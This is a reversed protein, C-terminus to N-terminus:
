VPGDSSKLTWPSMTCAKRQGGGLAMGSKTVNFEKFYHSVGHMEYYCAEDNLFRSFMGNITPLLNFLDGTQSQLAEQAKKKTSSAISSEVAEAIGVGAAAGGLALGVGLLAGGFFGLAGLLGFALGGLFDTLLGTDADVDTIKADWTLLNEASVQPTMVATVDVLADPYNDLYYTLTSDIKICQEDWSLRLSKYKGIKSGKEDYLRPNKKPNDAKTVNWINKEFRGLVSPNVGIIFDAYTPLYNEAADLNGRLPNRQYLQYVKEETVINGETDKVVLQHNDPNIELGGFSRNGLVRAYISKQGSALVEIPDRVYHQWSEVIFGYFDDPTLIDGVSDQPRFESLINLHDLHWRDAFYSVDMEFEPHLPWLQAVPEGQANKPNNYKDIFELVEAGTKWQSVDGYPLRRKMYRALANEYYDTLDLNLYLGIAGQYEPTSNLKKLAIHRINQPGINGTM